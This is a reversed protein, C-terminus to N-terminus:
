KKITLLNLLDLFELHRNTFEKKLSTVLKEYKDNGEQKNFWEYYLYDIRENDGKLNGLEALIDNLIRKESRLMNNVRVKNNVVNYDIKSLKLSNSIDIIEMEENVLFKSKRKSFGKNDFEIMIAHEGDTFVTAYPLVEINRSSFLQTKDKILSLSEEGLRVKRVCFDSYVDYNVKFLPARRVHSFDDNEEWDYFDFLEENLNILVDYVYIM